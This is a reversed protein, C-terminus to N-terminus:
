SVCSICMSCKLLILFLCLDPVLVLNSCMPSVFRIIEALNPLLCLDPVSVILYWAQVLVGYPFTSLVCYFMVYLLALLDAPSRLAALCLCHLSM